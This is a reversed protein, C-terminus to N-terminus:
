GRFQEAKSRAPLNRAASVLSEWRAVHKAIRNAHCNPCLRKSPTGITMGPAYRHCRKCAAYHFEDVPRPEFFWPSRFPGMAAPLSAALRAFETITFYNPLGVHHLRSLRTLPELSGDQVHASILLFCELNGLTALPELTPLRYKSWMGGSIFLWRLRRLATIEDIGPVKALDTLALSELGDLETLPELSAIHPGALTLHELHSLHRLPALDAGRAATLSLSRLSTLTGLLQVTDTRAEGILVLAQIGPVTALRPLDPAGLDLQVVDQTNPPIESIARFTPSRPGGKPPIGAAHHEWAQRLQELAHSWTTLTKSDATRGGLPGRKLQPASFSSENGL